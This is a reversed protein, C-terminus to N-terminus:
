DRAVPNTERRQKWMPGRTQLKIERRRTGCEQGSVRPDWVGYETADPDGRVEALTTAMGGNGCARSGPQRRQM